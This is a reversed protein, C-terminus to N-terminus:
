DVQKEFHARNYEFVSRYVLSERDLARDVALVGDLHDIEHQMLESVSRDLHEWIHEQGEEGQLNLTVSVFRKVKVLQDPFSMCDDWLSFTEESTWPVVPNIITFVAGDLNLAIFRKNIGIQPAAVARGFGKEKRFTNLTQHLTDIEHSLEQTLPFRV